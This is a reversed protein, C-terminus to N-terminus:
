DLKITPTDLLPKFFKKESAVLIMDDPSLVTGLELDLDLSWVHFRSQGDHSKLGHITEHIMIKPLASKTNDTCYQLIIATSRVVSVEFSRVM